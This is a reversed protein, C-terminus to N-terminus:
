HHIRSRDFNRVRDTLDVVRSVEDLSTSGDLVRRVGDEALSVFGKALAVARVEAAPARRAVLEDLDACMKLLEMIAVRGKYGQHHCHDCGIARYLTINLADSALGLLHGEMM